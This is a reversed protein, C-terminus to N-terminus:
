RPIECENERSQKLYRRLKKLVWAHVEMIDKPKKGLERAIESLLKDEFYVGRIVAEQMASLQSITRELEERLEQEFMGAILDIKIVEGSLNYITGEVFWLDVDTSLPFLISELARLDIVVKIKLGLLTAATETGVKHGHQQDLQRLRLFQKRDDDTAGARVIKTIESIIANRVCKMALSSFRLRRKPDFTDIAQCLGILGMQFLDIQECHKVSPFSRVVYAVVWRYERAIQDKLQNKAVGEARQYQKFLLREALIGIRERAKSM